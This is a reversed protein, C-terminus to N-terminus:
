FKGPLDCGWWSLSGIVAQDLCILPWGKAKPYSLKYELACGCILDFGSKPGPVVDKRPRKGKM